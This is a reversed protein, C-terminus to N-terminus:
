EAEGTTGSPSYEQSHHREIELYAPRKPSITLVIYDPLDTEGAFISIGDGVTLTHGDDFTLVFHTGEATLTYKGQVRVNAINAIRDGYQEIQRRGGASWVEAELSYAPGFSEIPVGESDKTVTRNRVYITQM